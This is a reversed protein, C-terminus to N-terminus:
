PQREGRRGFWMAGFVAFIQGAFFVAYVPGSLAILWVTPPAVRAVWWGAFDVVLALMPVAILLGRSTRGLATGTMLLSTILTFVPISLMHIHSILILHPVSQPRIWATGEEVEVQAATYESVLEYSVDSFLDEAFPSRHAREEGPEGDPMHCRVCRDQLIRRPSMDAPPAPAAFTERAAGDLLWKELTQFEAETNFFERMEGRAMELMRSPLTTEEDIEVTLGSYVAKLDDFTLRSADGGAGKHRHYINAVGFLYGVGMMALFATLMIRVSISLNRLHWPTM